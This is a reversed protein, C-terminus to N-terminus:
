DLAVTATCALKSLERFPEAIVGAILLGGVIIFFAMAVDRSYQWLNDYPPPSFAM